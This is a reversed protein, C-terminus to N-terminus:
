RRVLYHSLTNTLYAMKVGAEYLVRGYISDELRYYDPREDFQIRDFLSKRMTVHAHHIPYNDLALGLIDSRTTLGEKISIEGPHAFAVNHADVRRYSHYVAEYTKLAEMAYALRLPHMRDDVDIFSICETSLRKAARNRNEAANMMQATYSVTVPISKYDFAVDMTSDWSSCSIVVQAPLVTSQAINELLPMIHDAHGRHCPVAIGIM